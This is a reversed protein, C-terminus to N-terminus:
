LLSIWGDDFRVRCLRSMKRLKRVMWPEYDIGNLVLTNINMKKLMFLVLPMDGSDPTIHLYHLSDIKAIYYLVTTDMEGHICLKEIKTQILKHLGKRNFMMFTKIHV